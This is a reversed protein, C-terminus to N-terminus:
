QAFARLLDTAMYMQAELAVVVAAGGQHTALNHALESVVVLKGVAPPGVLWALRGPALPALLDIIKIGTEWVPGASERSRSVSGPDPAPALPPGGDALGGTPYIIRGLVHAAPPLSLATLM